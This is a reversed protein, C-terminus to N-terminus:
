KKKGNNHKESIGFLTRALEALKATASDSFYGIIFGVSFSIWPSDLSNSDFIRIINSNIIVMFTFGIAGSLHPTLFRWIRRDLHWISKAVSHYLWKICYLTGGLTGGLWAFSYKVFIRYDIENLSMVFNPKRTWFLFIIIPVAFIFIFLYVTELIIWFRAQKDTYRSKWDLPDRGDTYDYPAFDTIHKKDNM